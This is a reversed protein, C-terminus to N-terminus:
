FKDRRSGDSPSDLVMISASKIILYVQQGAQLGLDRLAGLTIEAVLRAGIDIYVLVRAGRTHVEEIVGVLVNRASTKSPTEVALIIDSARLSITVLDGLSCGPDPVSVRANGIRLEVMEDEPERSVVEAELLNELTSYVAMSGVNPHVLVEAPRGQVVPKGDSLVLVSQALALVHSMSHSVYVMPTELDRLTRRLYQIILGQFEADLSALPEDLLLVRPSTALARALAVRQREGGSLGAVGRELLDSLQFLEVLLELDTTRRETPTLRYGYRINNWVTMHPFLASDQFVYGLQRREPPLNRRASSSFVVEGLVEITGEDPAVLGALCNLLTTKGSGSPGFVATIGPEFTAECELSFGSYRKTINFSLIPETV